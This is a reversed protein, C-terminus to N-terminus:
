LFFGFNPGGCGFGWKGDMEQLLSRRKRAKEWEGRIRYYNITTVKEFARQNSGIGPQHLSHCIGIILRVALFAYNMKIVPVM